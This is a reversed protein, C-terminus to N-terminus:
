FSASIEIEACSSCLGIQSNCRIRKGLSCFVKLSNLVFKRKDNVAKNNEFIREVSFVARFSHLPRDGATGVLLPGFTRKPQRLFM